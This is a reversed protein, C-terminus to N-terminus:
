EWVFLRLFFLKLEDLGFRMFFSYLIDVITTKLPWWATYSENRHCVYIQICIRLHSPTRSLFHTRASKRHSNASLAVSMAGDFWKPTQMQCADDCIRTYFKQCSCLKQMLSLFISTFRNVVLHNVLVHEHTLMARIWLPPLTVIIYSLILLYSMATPQHSLFLKLLIEILIYSLLTKIKQKHHYDQIIYDM